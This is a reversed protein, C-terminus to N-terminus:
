ARDFVDPHRRRLLNWGLVVARDHLGTHSWYWYALRYEPPGRHTGAPPWMAGWDAYGLRGSGLFSLAAATLITVGVNM